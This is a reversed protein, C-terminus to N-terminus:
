YQSLKTVRQALKQEKALQRKLAQLKDQLKAILDVKRDLFEDLTVAYADMEEENDVSNQVMQLLKGEQTLMDANEQINSMHQNLLAEELEFFAQVTRRMEAQEEVTPGNPKTRAMQQQQEEDDFDDDGQCATEFSENTQYSVQPHSSLAQMDYAKDSETQEDESEEDDNNDGEEQDFDDAVLLDDESDETSEEL